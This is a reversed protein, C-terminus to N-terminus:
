VLVEEAEAPRDTVRHFPALIVTLNDAVARVYPERVITDHTGRVPIVDLDQAIKSWRKEVELLHYLPETKAKFLLV